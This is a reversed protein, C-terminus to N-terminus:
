LLFPQNGQLVVVYTHLSAHDILLLRSSGGQVRPLIGLIFSNASPDMGSPSRGAYAFSASLLIVLCLGTAQRSVSRTRM